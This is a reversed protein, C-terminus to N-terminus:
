KIELIRILDLSVDIYDGSNKFKPKFKISTITSVDNIGVGIDSLKKSVLFWGAKNPNIVDFSLPNSATAGDALIEVTMGSGEYSSPDFYLWFSLVAKDPSPILKFSKAFNFNVFSIDGIYYTKAKAAFRYFTNGQFAKITDIPKSIVLGSQKIFTANASSTAVPNYRTPKPENEFDDLFQGINAYNPESKLTVITSQTTQCNNSFEIKCQEGVTFDIATDSDGYWLQNIDASVGSYKKFANSTLGTIKINWSLNDAIKAKLTDAQSKFNIESNKNSTFPTINTSCYKPGLIPEINNHACSGFVLVAAVGLIRNYIKM